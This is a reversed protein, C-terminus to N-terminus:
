CLKSKSKVYNLQFKFTLTHLFYKARSKFVEYTRYNCHSQIMVTNFDTALISSSFVSFGITHTYLPSSELTYILSLAINSSNLQTYIHLLDLCGIWVRDLLWASQCKVINVFSSRVKISRLRNYNLITRMFNRRSYSWNRFAGINIRVLPRSECTPFRCWVDPGVDTVCLGWHQQVRRGPVV